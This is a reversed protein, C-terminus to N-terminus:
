AMLPKLKQALVLTEAMEEARMMEVNVRSM